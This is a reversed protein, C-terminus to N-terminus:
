EILEFGGVWLCYCPLNVERCFCCSHSMEELEFIFLWLLLLFLIFPVFLFSRAHPLSPVLSRVFNLFLLLLCICSIQAFSLVLFSSSFVLFALSFFFSSFWCVVYLLLFLLLLVFILHVFM